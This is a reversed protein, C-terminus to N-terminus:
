SAQSLNLSVMSWSYFFMFLFIFTGIIGARAGASEALFGFGAAMMTICMFPLALLLLGRRGYRDILWYAPVGAIFNVAGIIGWSFWLSRMYAPSPTCDANNSSFVLGEGYDKTAIKVFFSSSYFALVNVGCLQQGIECSMM